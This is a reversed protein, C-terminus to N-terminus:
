PQVAAAFVEDLLTENVSGNITDVEGSGDIVVLAPQVPIGRRRAWGVVLSQLRERATQYEDHDDPGFVLRM